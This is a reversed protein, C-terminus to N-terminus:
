PMATPKVDSGPLPTDADGDLCGQWEPSTDDHAGAYNDAREPDFTPSNVDAWGDCLKFAARYAVKEAVTYSRWQCTECYPKSLANTAVLEVGAPPNRWIDPNAGAVAVNTADCAQPWNGEGDDLRKEAGYCRIEGPPNPTRTSSVWDAGCLTIKSGGREPFATDFDTTFCAENGRIFTRQIDFSFSPSNGNCAAPYLQCFQAANANSHGGCASALLVL